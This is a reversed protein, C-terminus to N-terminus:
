TECTASTESQYRAGIKQSYSTWFAKLGAQAKPTLGATGYAPDSVTLCAGRMGIPLLGDEGIQKIRQKRAKPDTLFKESFKFDQSHQVGDSYILVRTSDLGNKIEGDAAYLSGVLDSGKEGQKFGCNIQNALLDTASKVDRALNDSRRTVSDGDSSIDISRATCPTAQSSGDAIIVSLRTGDIHAESSLMAGISSPFTKALERTSGSVDLITVIQRTIATPGEPVDDGCAGMSAALVFVLAVAGARCRM